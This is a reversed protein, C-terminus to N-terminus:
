WKILIQRLLQYCNFPLSLLSFYCSFPLFIACLISSMYACSYLFLPLLLLLSHHSSTSKPFLLYFSDINEFFYFIFGDDFQIQFISNRVCHQYPEVVNVWNVAPFALRIFVVFGNPECKQHSSVQNRIFWFWCNWWWYWWKFRFIAFHFLLLLYTISLTCTFRSLLVFFKILHRIHTEQGGTYVCHRHTVNPLSLLWGAEKTRKHVESKGNDRWKLGNRNFQLWYQNMKYRTTSPEMSLEVCMWHSRYLRPSVEFVYTVKIRIIRSILKRFCKVHVYNGCSQLIMSFRDYLLTYNVCNWSISENCISIQM